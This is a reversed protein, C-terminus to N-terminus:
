QVARRKARELLAMRMVAHVAGGIVVGLAVGPGSGAYVWTFAAAAIAIVTLRMTVAMWAAPAAAGLPWGLVLGMLVAAFTLGPVM